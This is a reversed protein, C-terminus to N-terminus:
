VGRAEKLYKTYYELELEAIQLDGNAIEHNIEFNVANGRGFQEHIHARKTVAEKVAGTEMLNDNAPDQMVLIQSQTRDFRNDVNVSLQFDDAGEQKTKVHVKTYRKDIHPIDFDYFGTRVRVKQAQGKITRGIHEFVTGAIDDAGGCLLLNTDADWYMSTLNFGKHPGYFKDALIDYVWLHYRETLGTTVESSEFALYYYRNDVIEACALHARYPNPYLKVRGKTVFVDNPWKYIEFDPTFMLFFNGFRKVTASSITGAQAKERDFTWSAPVGVINGSSISFENFFTVRGEYIDFTRPTDGRISEIIQSNGDEWEEIGNLDIHDSFRMLDPNEEEGIGLFRGAYAAFLIKSFKKPSTASLGEGGGITYTQIGGDWRRWLDKRSGFYVSNKHEMYEVRQDPTLDTIVSSFLDTQEDFKYVGDGTNMLLINTKPLLKHYRFISYVSSAGIATGNIEALGRMKKLWGDEWYMNQSKNLANIPIRSMPLANIVGGDWGPFRMIQKM